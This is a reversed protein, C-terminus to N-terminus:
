SDGVSASGHSYEIKFLKAVLYSHASNIWTLRGVVLQALIYFVVYIVVIHGGLEAFFSSLGKVDRTLLM